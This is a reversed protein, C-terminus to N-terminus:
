GSRAIPRRQDDVQLRAALVDRGVEVLGAADREDALAEGFGAQEVAAGIVTVPLVIPSSAAAALSVGPWCTTCVAASGILFVPPRTM